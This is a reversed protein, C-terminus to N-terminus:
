VSSANDSMLRLTRRADPRVVDPLRETFVCRQEEGRQMRQRPHAAECELRVLRRWISVGTAKEKSPDVRRHLGELYRRETDNAVPTLGGATFRSAIM